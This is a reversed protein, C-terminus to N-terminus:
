SLRAGSRLGARKGVCSMEPVLEIGISGVLGRDIMVTVGGRRSSIPPLTTLSGIAHSQRRNVPSRKRTGQTTSNNISALEMFTSVRPRRSSAHACIEEGRGPNQRVVDGVAETDVAGGAAGWRCVLRARRRQLGSVAVGPPGAGSAGGSRAEFDGSAASGSGTLVGVLSREQREM